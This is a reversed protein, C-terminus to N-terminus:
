LHYKGLVLKNFFSNKYYYENRYSTKMIKYSEQLEEIDEKVARLDKYYDYKKIIREINKKSYINALNNQQM